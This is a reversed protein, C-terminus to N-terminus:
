YTIYLIAGSYKVYARVRFGLGHMHAGRCGGGGQTWEEERRTAPSDGKEPTGPPDHMEFIQDAVLVIQDAVLCKQDGILFYESKDLRIDYVIHSM